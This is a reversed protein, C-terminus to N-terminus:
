LRRRKERCGEKFGQPDAGEGGPCLGFGRCLQKKITPKIFCNKLLCGAECLVQPIASDPWEKKAELILFLSDM